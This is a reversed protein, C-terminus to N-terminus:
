LRWLTLVHVMRDLAACRYIVVLPPVILIRRDSFRSEGSQEPNARLIAEVQDAAASLANRDEADLWLEALKREATTAWVVTYSM